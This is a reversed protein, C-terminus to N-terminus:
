KHYLRCRKFVSCIKVFSLLFSTIWDKFMTSGHEAVTACLCLPNRSSTITIITKKKPNRKRNQMDSTSSSICVPQSLHPFTAILFVDPSLFLALSVCVCILRMTLHWSLSFPSFSVLCSCVCLLGLFPHYWLLHCMVSLSLTLRKRIRAFLCRDLKEEPGITLSDHKDESLALWDEKIVGDLDIMVFGLCTNAMYFFLSGM